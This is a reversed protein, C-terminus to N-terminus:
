VLDVMPVQFVVQDQINIELVVVAVVVIQLQTLLHLRTELEVLHEAVKEVAEQPDLKHDIQQVVVAEVVLTIDLVEVLFVMVELLQLYELVMVVMVQKVQILEMQEVLWQVEVVV